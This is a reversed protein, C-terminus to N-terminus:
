PSEDILIQDNEKSGDIWFDITDNSTYLVMRIQHPSGDNIPTSGNVRLQNGASNVAQIKVTGSSDLVIQTYPFNGSPADHTVIGAFNESDTTSINAVFTTASTSVNNQTQLYDESGDLSFYDSPSDDVSGFCDADNNNGSFDSAPCSGNFGYEVQTSQASVAPIMAVLLILSLLVAKRM